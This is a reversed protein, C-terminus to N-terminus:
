TIAYKFNGAALLLFVFTIKDHNFSTELYDVLSLTPLSSFFFFFISLPLHAM